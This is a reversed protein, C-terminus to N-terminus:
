VFHLTSCYFLLVIADDREREREREKKKEKKREEKKGEFARLDKKRTRSDVVQYM